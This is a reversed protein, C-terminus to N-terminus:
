GRFALTVRSRDVHGMAPHVPFARLVVLPRIQAILDGLNSVLAAIAVLGLAFDLDALASPCRSWAGTRRAQRPRVRDCSSRVGRNPWSRDARPQGPFM